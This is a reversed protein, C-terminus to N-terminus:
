YVEVAVLFTVFGTSLALVYMVSSGPRCQMVFIDFQVEPQYLKCLSAVIARGYALESDGAFVMRKTSACFSLANYVHIYHLRHHMKWIKM